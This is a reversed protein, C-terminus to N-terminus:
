LQDLTSLTLKSARYKNDRFGFMVADMAMTFSILPPSSWIISDYTGDISEMNPIQNSEITRTFVHLYCDGYCAPIIKKKTIPGVLGTEEKLEKLATQLPTLGDSIVGRAGVDYWWGNESERRALNRRGILYLNSYVVNVVVSESCLGIIGYRFSTCVNLYARPITIGTYFHFRYVFALLRVRELKHKDSSKLWARDLSLCTNLFIVISKIIITALALSIIGVTWNIPLNVLTAFM